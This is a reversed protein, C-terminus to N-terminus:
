SAARLHLVRGGVMAQGVIVHDLFTMQLIRAAAVVRKTLLVDRKSAVAADSPHNHILTFASAEFSYNCSSFDGSSSRPISQANRAFIDVKTICRNQTDVLVVRVVEQHFKKMDLNAQYIREPNNLQVSLAHETDAGNSISLAPM